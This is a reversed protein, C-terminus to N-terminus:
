ITQCKSVITQFIKMKSSLYNRGGITFSAHDTNHISESYRRASGSSSIVRDGRLVKMEEMDKFRLIPVTFM